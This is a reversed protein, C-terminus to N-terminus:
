QGGTGILLKDAANNVVTGANTLTKDVAPRMIGTSAAIIALVIVTLIIVYELISQGRKGRKM